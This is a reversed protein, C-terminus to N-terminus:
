LAAIAELEVKFGHHLERTPVISRAPRHKGFFVSYAADIEDWTEIDPVYVTMKLVRDLSTGAADLIAKVNLLARVVQEAAAGTCKANTLPDIPLQGSVFVLGGHTWGQEYHGAPVPANPSSVREM